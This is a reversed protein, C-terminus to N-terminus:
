HSDTKRFTVRREQEHRPQGNDQAKGPALLLATFGHNKFLFKDRGQLDGLSRFILRNRNLVLSRRTHSFCGTFIILRDTLILFKGIGARRLVVLPDYVDPHNGIPTLDAHPDIPLLPLFQFGTVSDPDRIPLAFIGSRNPIRLNVLGILRASREAPNRPALCASLM